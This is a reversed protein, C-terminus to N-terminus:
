YPVRIVYTSEVYRGYRIAPTWKPMKKVLEELEEFQCHSVDGSLIQDFEAQGTEDIVIMIKVEEDFAEKCKGTNKSVLDDIAKVGGIYRPERYLTAFIDKKRKPYMLGSIFKGNKFTMKSIVKKNDAYQTWEGNPFGNTYEISVRKVGNAYYEIKTGNGNQIQQKGEADWYSILKFEKEAEASIDPDFDPNIYKIEKPKGDKYYTYITDVMKGSDFKQRIEPNGNEYYLISTGHMKGDRYNYYARVNGNKYYYRFEGIQNYPKISKKYVGIMQITFTELYFDHVLWTSDEATYWAGRYYNAEARSKTEYWDKNLFITDTIVLEQASVSHPLLLIILWKKM